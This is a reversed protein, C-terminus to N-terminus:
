GRDGRMGYLRGFETSQPRAHDFEDPVALVVRRAATDGWGADGEGKLGDFGDVFRSLLTLTRETHDYQKLHDLNLLVSQSISFFRHQQLLKTYQGIGKTARMLRGDRM